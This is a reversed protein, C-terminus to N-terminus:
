SAKRGLPLAAVTFARAQQGCLVRAECGCQTAARQLQSVAADLETKTPATVTVFGSFRFDSHGAILARERDLVDNYEQTDSLDAIQGIRAKQAADTVYEVKQKRIDRMAQATSMPSATISFSKRVGPEFILAHLFSPAVEIRPWESIWLVTSYGSDHQLHDWHEAVGVPGATDLAQGIETGDLRDATLPDYASQVVSALERDTLWGDLDLDAARLSSELASMHQRLVAAASGIGRGADKIAKSAKTMDLVLAILTRHSSASPAATRMLEDYEHVAWQEVDQSGHELWWGTIGHGSDPHATELIQIRACSGSSALGALVRGWGTVRQAQCDPSLLVFAPHTIHAIATLTRAHPDHVMVAGSEDVHFRMAAADGPLAITGAPRPESPRVAFETQGLAHRAGYHLATPLVEILPRGGWPVLASAMLSLWIPSTVAVGLLGATFMAPVFAALGVAIAGVRLGSFGLLLGKSQRRGFRVLAPGSQTAEVVPFEL